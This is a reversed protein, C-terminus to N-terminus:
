LGFSPSSILIDCRAGAIGVDPEAKRNITVVRVADDATEAQVVVVVVVVVASLSVRM